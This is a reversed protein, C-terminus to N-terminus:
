KITKSGAKAVLVSGHFRSPAFEYPLINTMVYKSTLYGSVTLDKVLSIFNFEKVPELSQNELSLLIGERQPVLIKAFENGFQSRALLNLDDLGTIFSNKVVKEYCDEVMVLIFKDVGLEKAGPTDTLPIITDVLSELISRQDKNIALGPSPLKELSWANIWLPVTAFGVASIGLTKILNRRNM